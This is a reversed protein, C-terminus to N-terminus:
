YFLNAKTRWAYLRYPIQRLLTLYLGVRENPKMKHRIAFFYLAFISRNPYASDQLAM